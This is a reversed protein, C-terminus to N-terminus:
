LLPELRELLTEVDHSGPLRDRVVGDRDILLTLPITAAGFQARAADMSTTWLPYSPELGLRRRWFGLVQAAGGSDVALGIVTANHPAIRRQLEVLQPIKAICPACWIAWLNLVVVQGRHDALSVSEGTVSRFPSAVGADARAASPVCASLLLLSLLLVRASPM